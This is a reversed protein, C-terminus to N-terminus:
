TQAEKVNRSNKSKRIWYDWDRCNNDEEKNQRNYTLSIISLMSQM